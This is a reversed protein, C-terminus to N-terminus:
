FKGLFSALRDFTFARSYLYPTSRGWERFYNSHMDYHAEGAPKQGVTRDPFFTKVIDATLIPESAVNLLPVELEIVKQIDSWLLELDYYQFSSAPNIAELCNHHMLDFIVNKKLGAGFLGPLRVINVVPFRERIFQEVNFRHRGYPHAGELAIETSETVGSPDPYVDITSILVFRKAEIQKLMDLLRVIKSWDSEPDKNALWKVASIGSCVVLDFSKGRMEDSNHSNYYASFEYQRCLNGGVFGSHGILASIM